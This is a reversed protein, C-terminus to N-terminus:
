TFWCRYWPGRIHECWVIDGGFLRRVAPPATFEQEGRDFRWGRAARVAGAPDYVAGEWNDLIGGPQPFALRVPPGVDLEYRVGHREGSSAPAAGPPAAEATLERVVQEYTGRHSAFRMRFLTESGLSALREAGFFLAVAFAALGAATLVLGFSEHREHRAQWAGWLTLGLLVLGALAYPLFLMFSPVWVYDWLLRQLLALLLGVVAWCAAGRTLTAQDLRGAATPARM